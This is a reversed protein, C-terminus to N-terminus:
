LMWRIHAVIGDHYVDPRPAVSLELTLANIYRTEYHIPLNTTSWPQQTQILFPHARMM